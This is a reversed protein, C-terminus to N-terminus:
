RRWSCFWAKEKRYQATKKVAESIEYIPTQLIIANSQGEIVETCFKEIFTRILSTFAQVPTPTYPSNYNVFTVAELDQM